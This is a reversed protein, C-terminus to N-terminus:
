EIPVLVTKKEVKYVGIFEYKHVIDGEQLNADAFEEETFEFFEDKMTVVHFIIGANKTKKTKKM